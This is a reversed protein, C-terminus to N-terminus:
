IIKKIFKAPNGGVLSYPAVDKTVVSGAAIVSHHGITIGPIVIAGAGIWVNNEIKVFSEIHPLNNSSTILNMDLGSDFIMVRTSLIVNEGIDVGCRGQIYVGKNIRSNKGIRINKSIGVDFKGYAYVKTNFLCRAYYTYFRDRLKRKLRM